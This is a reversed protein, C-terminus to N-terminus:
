TRSLEKRDTRATEDSLLRKDPVPGAIVM